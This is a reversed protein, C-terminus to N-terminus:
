LTSEFVIDNNLVIVNDYSAERFTVPTRTLATLPPGGGSVAKKVKM